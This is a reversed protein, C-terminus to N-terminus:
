VITMRDILCGGDRAEGRRGGDTGDGQLAEALEGV